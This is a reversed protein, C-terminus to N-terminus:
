LLGGKYQLTNGLPIACLRMRASDTSLYPDVTDSSEHGLVDSVTDYPVGANLLNSAFTKRLIHTGSKRGLAKSTIRYFQEKSLCGHPARPSIFLYPTEKNPREEEIYKLIANGVGNSFPLRIHKRTKQQILSFEKKRWDISDCRLTTIDIGRLGTQTAIKLVASELYGGAQEAKECYGNISDLDDNSLIVAPRVKVGNISPLAKSIGKPVLGRSELFRLFGRIRVNYANKGENTSHRDQLNFGKIRGVSVDAFGRCGDHDLYTLFRTLSSRDMDLTSRCKGAKERIAMYVTVESNAWVPLAKSQNKAFVLPIDDKGAHNLLYGISLLSRRVADINPSIFERFHDIFFTAADESYGLGNCGLFVGFENSASLFTKRITNSYGQLTLIEYAKSQAAKYEHLSYVTAGVQLPADKPIEPLRKSFLFHYSDKLYPVAMGQKELYALFRGVGRLAGYKLYYDACREYSLHSISKLGDQIQRLLFTSAGAKFQDICKQKKQYHALFGSVVYQSWFPLREYDSQIDKYFLERLNEMPNFLIAIRYHVFRIKKYAEHSSNPKIEKELWRAAMEPTYPLREDEMYKRFKGLSTRTTSVASKGKGANIAENLIRMSFEDYQQYM